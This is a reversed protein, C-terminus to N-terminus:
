CETHRQVHVSKSSTINGLIAGGRPLRLGVCFDEEIEPRMDDTIPISLTANVQGDAFTVEDLPEFEFDEGNVAELSTVFYLVTVQGVIGQDRAIVLDVAGAAELVLYAEQLFTLTGRPSDNSTITVEAVSAVGVTPPATAGDVGDVLTVSTLRVVFVEDLEPDADQLLLWATYCSM